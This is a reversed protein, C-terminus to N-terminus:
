QAPGHGRTLVCGVVAYCGQTCKVCGAAPLLRFRPVMFGKFEVEVLRWNEPSSCDAGHAARRVGDHGLCLVM